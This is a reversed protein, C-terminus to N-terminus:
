KLEAEPLRRLAPRDPTRSGIVDVVATVLHAGEIHAVLEKVGDKPDTSPAAHPCLGCNLTWDAGGYAVAGLPQHENDTLTIYTLPGRETTM